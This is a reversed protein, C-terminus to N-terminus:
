RGLRARVKATALRNIRVSSSRISTLEATTVQGGVITVTVIEHHGLKAVALFMVLPVDGAATAVVGRLRFLATRDAYDAVSLRRVTWPKGDVTMTACASFAKVGRTFDRSAGLMTRFTQLDENVFTPSTAFQYDRQVEYRLGVTQHTTGPCGKVSPDAGSSSADYSHWGTGLDAASLTAHAVQSRTLATAASAPSAAVLAAATAAVLAAVLRHHRM